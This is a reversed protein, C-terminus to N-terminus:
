KSLVLRQADRNSAYDDKNYAPQADLQEKTIAAILYRKGSQDSVFILGDFAVAVPKSGIGLFGGFDVIVADLAGDQTLVFDSISAIKNGNQDLVDVGKLDDGKISGVDVPTLTKVDVAGAAPAANQNAAPAAPPNAAPAPTAAAPAAPATAAPSNATMANQDVPAALTKNQATNDPEAAAGGQQATQSLGQVTKEHDQLTPLTKAAFDKVQGDEGGKSFQDFLAVAEHHADTQMKIYASDFDAGAAANLQDLLQKHKDDLETPVKIGQADAAAKLEDGAKTHDDIMRQAFEKVQPSTAKELAIKSSEIEFLNSVAAVDTFQQASTVAAAQTQAAPQSANNQAAAPTVSLAALAAVIMYRKM